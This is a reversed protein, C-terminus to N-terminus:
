CLGTLWPPTRRELCRLGSDNEGHVAGKQGEEEQEREGGCGGLRRVDEGDQKAFAADGGDAGAGRTRGVNEARAGGRLERGLAGELGLKGGAIAVPPGARLQRARVQKHGLQGGVALEEEEGIEAAGSAFDSDVEGNVRAADGIHEPLGFGLGIGCGPRDAGGSQGIAGEERLDAGVALGQEGRDGQGAFGARVSSPLRGMTTPRVCYSSTGTMPAVGAGMLSEAKKAGPGSPDGTTRLVPKLPGTM